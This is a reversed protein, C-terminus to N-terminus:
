SFLLFLIYNTKFGHFMNCNYFMVFYYFLQILLHRQAYQSKLIKMKQGSVFM